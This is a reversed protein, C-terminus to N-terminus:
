DPERRRFKAVESLHCEHRRGIWVVVARLRPIRPANECVTRQKSFGSESSRRVETFRNRLSQEPLVEDGRSVTPEPTDIVLHYHNTMLEYEHLIWKYRRVTEALFDLFQLRDRDCLFIDQRNNGRNHLHWTAGAFDLRLARAV